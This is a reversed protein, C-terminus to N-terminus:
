LLKKLCRAKYIDSNKIIRMMIETTSIEPTRSIPLSKGIKKIYAYVDEEGTIPNPYVGPNHCVLDIRYKELFEPTINWPAKEIVIDVYKCHRVSESRETENMVTIGKYLHTDQDNCVGVLLIAEPYMNKVRQLYKAHGYHFLDFIGDAYIRM